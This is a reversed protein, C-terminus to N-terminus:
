RKAEEDVSIWHLRYLDGTFGTDSARELAAALARGPKSGPHRVAERATAYDPNSALGWRLAERTEDDLGLDLSISVDYWGLWQEDDPWRELVLAAITELDSEEIWRALM